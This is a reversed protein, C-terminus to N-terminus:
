TNKSRLQGAEERFDGLVQDKNKEYKPREIELTGHEPDKTGALDSLTVKNQPPPDCTFELTDISPIKISTEEETLTEEADETTAKSISNPEMGSGCHMCFKPKGQSGYTIPKGCNYCYIKMKTIIAVRAM